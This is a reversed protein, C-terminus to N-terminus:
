PGGPRAQARLADAFASSRLFQMSNLTANIITQTEIRTAQVSNQVATTISRADPLNTIVISEGTSGL